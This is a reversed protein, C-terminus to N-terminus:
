RRRVVEFDTDTDTEEDGESVQRVMAPEQSDVVPRGFWTAIGSAVAIGIGIWINKPIRFGSKKEPPPVSPKVKFRATEDEIRKNMGRRVPCADQHDQIAKTIAGDLGFIAPLVTEDIKRDLNAVATGTARSSEQILRLLVKDEDTM